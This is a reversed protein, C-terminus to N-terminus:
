SDADSLTSGSDRDPLGAMWRQQAYDAPTDVDQLVSDNDVDVYAIAAAHANFVDRATQGAKLQLLDHWFRRDVLMPHGRRMKYSPIVIAGAGESYAKLLRYIVPPQIRPQDGLVILVASISDPMSRIGAQLSSLMEGTKYARNHVIEIDLPKLLSKVEAAYHGTVVHIQDIRARVLQDIIHEIITKGPTWPLLVKPEGMRRSQGAALVIAGVRRQVEYVPNAARISGVAVAHIRGSKLMLRAILRGRNRLYGDEPTQNILGIVRAQDPVGRLGMGEDRMIQAVWASRIAGGEYFGFHEIIARVNYVHADNLPQDLIGLSAVPVVLSTELPILPEDAFPAKLLKGDSRDAEVLLVDSDITDLLQRTWEVDPGYVVGGRIEGYLFVFGHQTLADSITQPNADYRVGHPLLDLQEESIPVTSTALVRWGLSALEYGISVMATTKGGSGTFAVVDGRVIGLAEHLKM